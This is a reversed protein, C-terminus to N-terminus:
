FSFGCVLRQFLSILRLSLLVRRLVLCNDSFLSSSFRFLSGIDSIHIECDSFKLCMIIRTTIFEQVSVEGIGALLIVPIKGPIQEPLIIVVFFPRETPVPRM